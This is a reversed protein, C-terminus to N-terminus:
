SHYSNDKSLLEVNLIRKPALSRCRFNVIIGLIKNYSVLYRQMQYYDKKAILRSAKFDILIKNEIIFDPVNRGKREGKFSPPLPMERMYKIDEKGLLSEFYDAYQKENRYRGLKNHTKYMLGTIEYSLQRYFIKNDKTRMNMFIRLM